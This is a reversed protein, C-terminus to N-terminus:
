DLKLLRDLAKKLSTGIAQVAGDEYQSFYLQANREGEKVALVGLKEMEAVIYYNADPWVVQRIGAMGHVTCAALTAGETQAVLELYDSPLQADIRSLLASRESQPLPAHLGAVRGKAYWECLWGTLASADVPRDVGTGYPRMPDFWIKVDVIEAQAVRFNMGAFFEKPAHNFVLSCLRGKVLWVEVKLKLPQDLRTQIVSALLAEDATYPFRLSDDFAPKGRRMQYLNVEKGDTLRQIKNIVEIQRQLKSAAGDDLRSKVVEIIRTEFPYLHLRGGLLSYLLNLMM